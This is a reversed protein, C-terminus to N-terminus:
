VEGVRNSAYLCKWSLENLYAKQAKNRWNESNKYHISRYATCFLFVMDHVNLKWIFLLQRQWSHSVTVVVPEVSSMVEKDSREFSAMSTLSVRVCLHVMLVINVNNWCASTSVLSTIWSRIPTILDSKSCRKANVSVMARSSINTLKAPLFNRATVFMGIIARCLCPKGRVM